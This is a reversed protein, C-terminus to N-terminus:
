ILLCTEPEFVHCALWRVVPVVVGDGTLHYADNYNAPLKYDDPLGMLRATERASILRSRVSDGEVVLLTQRSSGGSPTRLCGAIDDFRVEARPIKRGDPQPRTRMYLGGVQKTGARKAEDVKALRVDSMKDLYYSQTKTPADWQVDTPADEILDAFVVNRTPPKPLSWWLAKARVNELIAEIAKTVKQGHWLPSPTDQVLSAPIAVDGRVAVVFVRRRSQPVFLADDIVMAGFRYGAGTLVECLAAFDAGGKSTLLDEVNELAIVKPARGEAMLGQMLRWFSWFMGSREGGLGARNGALSLDQCPFSAWALDATPLDATTLSQIDGVRLEGGGWNMRYTAGKKPCIDNAFTVQWGDGLGARAMGGGAFFESMTFDFTM